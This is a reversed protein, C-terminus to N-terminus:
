ISSFCCLYHLVWVLKENEPTTQTDNESVKKEFIQLTHSIM